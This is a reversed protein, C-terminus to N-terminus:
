ITHLSRRGPGGRWAAACCTREGVIKIDKTTKVDAGGDSLPILLYCRIKKTSREVKSRAMDKSGAM